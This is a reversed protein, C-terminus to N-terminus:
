GTTCGRCCPSSTAFRRTCREARTDYTENQVTQAHADFRSSMAAMQHPDTMCRTVM